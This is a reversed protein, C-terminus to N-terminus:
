KRILNIRSQNKLNIYVKFVTSSAMKSYLTYLVQFTFLFMSRLLVFPYFMNEKLLTRTCNKQKIKIAIWGSSFFFCNITSPFSFIIYFFVSLKM